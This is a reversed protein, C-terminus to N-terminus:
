LKEHNDIKLIGDSGMSVGKLRIRIVPYGILRPRIM